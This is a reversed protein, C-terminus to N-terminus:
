LAFHLNKLIESLVEEIDHSVDDVHRSVTNDSVPVKDIEREAGKGIM